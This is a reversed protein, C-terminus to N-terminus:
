GPYCACFSLSLSDRVIWFHLFCTLFYKSQCLFYTSVYLLISRAIFVPKLNTLLSMCARELRMPRGGTVSLANTPAHFLSLCLLRLSLFLSLDLSLSLFSISVSMCVSLSTPLSLSTSPALSLSLSLSFSPPPSLSPSLSVSLSLSPPLFLPPPPLSLPLSLSLSPTNLSVSLSLSNWPSIVDVLAWLSINLGDCEWM